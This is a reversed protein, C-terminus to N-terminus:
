PLSVAKKEPTNHSILSFCQSLKMFLGSVAHKEEDNFQHMPPNEIIKSLTDVERVSLIHTASSDVERDMQIIRLFGNTRDRICDAIQAASRCVMDYHAMSCRLLVSVEADTFSVEVSPTFHIFHAQM